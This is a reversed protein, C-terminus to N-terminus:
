TLYKVETEVWSGDVDQIHVKSDPFVKIYDIHYEELHDACNRVLVKDGPQLTRALEKDM